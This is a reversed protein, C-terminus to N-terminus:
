VTLRNQLEKKYMEVVAEPGTIAVDKGLSFIWGFFQLSIAVDVAIKSRGDDVPRISIDKGFRDIFIGVKENPFEIHVRKIEGGFMSFNELAYTTMDFNKFHEEGDRKKDVVSLKMMKDVRYHKVKGDESDYAVLYYNEDAWTLAWPSVKYKQGDKRPELKKDITWSCYLFEIQKNNMLATHISDVSYYISENMTKIRDNVYVQRKLQKAQYESVFANMKKILVDSKSKSIFKSSQIADILLKVEALEFTRSGVHYYTERGEQEKIVEIGLENEMVKFDDYLSKREATIDYKQLEKIIQPLTLRHEDDTKEQMIKCLYSLKLKQNAGKSM